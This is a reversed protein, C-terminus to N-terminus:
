HGEKENDQDDRRSSAAVAFLTVAAGLAWWGWGTGEEKTQTKISSHHEQPITAAPQFQSFYDKEDDEVWQFSEPEGANTLTAGRCKLFYSFQLPLRM